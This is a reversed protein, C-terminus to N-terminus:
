SFIIDHKKVMEFLEAFSGPFIILKKGLKEELEPLTWDDLFFGDDNLCSPPLIIYDGTKKDKLTNYIDEGVLLGSVTISPGYFKNI